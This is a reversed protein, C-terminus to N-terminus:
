YDVVVLFDLIYVSIAVVENGGKGEEDGVVTSKDIIEPFIDIESQFFGLLFIYELGSDATNTIKGGGVPFLNRIFDVGDDLLNEGEVLYSHLLASFYCRM